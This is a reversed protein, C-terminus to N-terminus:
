SPLTTVMTRAWAAVFAKPIQQVAAEDAKTQAAAYGSVVILLVFILFLRKMFGGFRMVVSVLSNYDARITLERLIPKEAVEVRV